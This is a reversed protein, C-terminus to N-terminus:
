KTKFEVIDLNLLKHKLGVKQGGFKSSPGWIKTEVVKSSFGKAIKEAVDKVTSGPKMIIPKQSKEKGPEKTYIRIIKFTEFLKKKLDRIGEGTYSSVLIFNYKKSQLKSSVKRKEEETLLDTKTLIVIREGEAMVIKSFIKEIDEVKEVTILVTDAGNTLGKDYSESDISPNEIIQIQSDLYSMMRIVPQNKIYSIQTSTITSLLTSKGSNEFGVLIAQMDEKKIGPKSSAKAAKKKKELKEILTKYRTKLQARLNEAGKHSPAVSILRELTKIKDEVTKAELHEKEAHAYEPSVNVPCM